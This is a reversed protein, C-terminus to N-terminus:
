APCKSGWKIKVYPSQGLVYYKADYHEDVGYLVLGAKEIAPKYTESDKINM